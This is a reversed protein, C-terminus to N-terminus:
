GVCLTLLIDRTFELLQVLLDLLGKSSQILLILYHTPM